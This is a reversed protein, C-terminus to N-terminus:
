ICIQVCNWYVCEGDETSNKFCSVQPKEIDEIERACVSIYMESKVFFLCRGPIDANANLFFCFSFLELSNFFAELPKM